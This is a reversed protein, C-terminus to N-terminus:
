LLQMATSPVLLQRYKSRLKSEVVTKLLFILYSLIIYIKSSYLIKIHVSRYFIRPVELACKLVMGTTEINESDKLSYQIHLCLSLMYITSIVYAVSSKTRCSNTGRTHGMPQRTVSYTTTRPTQPRIWFLKECHPTVVLCPEPWWWVRGCQLCVTTNNYISQPVFIGSPLQSRELVDQPQHYYQICIWHSFQVVDSCLLLNNDLYVVVNPPMLKARNRREISIIYPTKTSPESVNYSYQNRKHM